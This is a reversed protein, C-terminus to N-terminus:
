RNKEDDDDARPLEEDGRPDALENIGDVLADAVSPPNDLYDQNPENTPDSM